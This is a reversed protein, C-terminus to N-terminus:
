AVVDQVDSDISGLAWTILDESAVGASVVKFDLVNYPVPSFVDENDLPAVVVYRSRWESDFDLVTTKSTQVALVIPSGTVSKLYECEMILFINQQKVGDADRYVVLPQAYEQVSFCSAYFGDCQIATHSMIFITLIIFLRFKMPGYRLPDLFM